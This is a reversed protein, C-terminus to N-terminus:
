GPDYLTAEETTYNPNEFFSDIIRSISGVKSSVARHASDVANVNKVTNEDINHEQQHPDIINEDATVPATLLLLIIVSM